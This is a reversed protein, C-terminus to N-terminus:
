LVPYWSNCGPDPPDPPGPLYHGHPCPPPEPDDAFLDYWCKGRTDGMTAWGHTIETFQKTRVMILDKATFSFGAEKAIQLFEDLASDLAEQTKDSLPKLEKRANEDLAKLKSQLAEDDEVKEFFARVNKESM